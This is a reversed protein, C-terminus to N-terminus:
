GTYGKSNKLLFYIWLMEAINTPVDHKGVMETTLNNLLTILDFQGSTDCVMIPMDM